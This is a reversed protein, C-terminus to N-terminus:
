PHCAGGGGFHRLDGGGGGGWRCVGGARFSWSCFGLMLHGGAVLRSRPGQSTPPDGGPHPVRAGRPKGGGWHGAPGFLPGSSFDRKPFGQGLQPRRHLPRPRLISRFLRKAWIVGIFRRLIGCGAPNPQDGERGLQFRSNAPRFGGWLGPM